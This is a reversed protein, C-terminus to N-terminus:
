INAIPYLCHFTFSVFYLFFFVYALLRSFSRRFIRRTCMYRAFDRLSFSFSSVRRKAHGLRRPLSRSLCSCLKDEDAPLLYFTRSLFLPFSLSTFFFGAVSRRSVRLWPFRRLISPSRRRPRSFSLPPWLRASRTMIRSSFCKVLAGPQYLPLAIPRPGAQRRRRAQVERWWRWRCAPPPPVLRVRRASDRRAVLRPLPPTRSVLVSVRAANMGHGRHSYSSSVCSACLWHTKCTRQGACPSVKKRAYATTENAPWHPSRSLNQM